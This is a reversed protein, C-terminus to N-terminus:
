ILGILDLSFYQVWLGMLYKRIDVSKNPQMPDKRPLRSRESHHRPETGTACPSLPEMAYPIKTGQARVLSQDRTRQVALCIRLWQIM